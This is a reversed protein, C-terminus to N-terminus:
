ASSTARLGLGTPQGIGTSAAARRFADLAGADDGVQQLLAGLEFWMEAAKRDAGISTLAMVARQFYARADMLSKTVLYTRGIVVCAEAALLPKSDAVEKLCAEATARAQEHNGSLFQIKAQTLQVRLRDITSASSWEMDRLAAEANEAAGQLDPPDLRLQISALAGKLRGLNRADEGQEMLELAKRALPLAAAVNGGRTQMLSANWYASARATPSALAEAREVTEQCLRFAYDLDGREHYAAAVTLALQIAQDSGALDTSEIQALAQQGVDIARSLEGTERYCRSLAILAGLWRPDHAHAEAIANLDTIAEKHRGTSELAEARLMLGREALPAVSGVTEDDLVGAIGALATEPDGSRLALEAYDLALEAEALDDRSVGVVLAEVTTKLKDALHQLLRTDPRRNGIEIRSIYAASVLNDAAEAQTLGAALRAARIRRGLPVPDVTRSLEALEPDVGTM